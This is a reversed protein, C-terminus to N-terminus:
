DDIMDLANSVCGGSIRLLRAPNWCRAMLEEFICDHRQKARKRAEPELIWREILPAVDPLLRLNHPLYRAGAFRAKTKSDVQMCYVRVCSPDAEPPCTLRIGTWLSMVIMPLVSPNRAEDETRCAPVFKDRELHVGFDFAYQPLVGDCEVSLTFPEGEGEGVLMYGLVIDVEESDGPNALFLRATGGDQDLDFSTTESGSEMIRHLHSMAQDCISVLAQRTANLREETWMYVYM